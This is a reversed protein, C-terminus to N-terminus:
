CVARRHEALAQRQRNAPPSTGPLSVALLSSSATCRCPRMCSRPWHCRWRLTGTLQCSPWRPRRTRLLRRSPVEPRRCAVPSRLGLVCGPVLLGNGRCTLLIDESSSRGERVSCCIKGSCCAPWVEFRKEQASQHAGARRLGQEQIQAIRATSTTVIQQVEQGAEQLVQLPQRAQVQKVEAVVACCVTPADTSVQHQASASTCRRVM